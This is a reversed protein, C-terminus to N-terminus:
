EHCEETISQWETKPKGCDVCHCPNTVSYPGLNPKHTKVNNAHNNDAEVRLMGAVICNGMRGQKEAEELCEKKHKQYDTM